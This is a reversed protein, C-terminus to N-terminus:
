KANIGPEGVEWHYIRDYLVVSVCLGFLTPFVQYRLVVPSALISFVMNLGWFLFTTLILKNLDAYAHGFRTFISLGILGIILVINVVLSFSSYYGAMAVITNPSNGEAIKWTRYGFWDKASKGVSDLGMNYIALFEPPPLAYRMANPWLFDRAYEKPYTRILYMGYDAYLPGESAWPIFLFHGPTSTSDKKGMERLMYQILPGKDSWLYFINGTSDEHTKKVRDMTDLHQRVMGDLKAFRSPVPAREGPPIKEYMYLANNALQWGGFASFERKGVVELMKESTYLISGLVLLLGLGIGALKLRWHQASLLFAFLMIVPYYIAYYRLTFCILLLIGTILIQGPRPRYIIWFLSSMWLFSFGYFLADAAVYNSIYLTIPNLLFFVFLFYKAVKGLKFFYDLTFVFILGSGQMFLYQVASLIKDSHTFVSVLRLFKSYAVPWINVDANTYATDLYSYSDPMYNVYPYQLKFLLFELLCIGMGILVFSRNWRSKWIYDIFERGM